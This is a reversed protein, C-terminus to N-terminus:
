WLNKWIKKIIFVKKQSSSIMDLGIEKLIYMQTELSESNIINSYTGVYDHARKILRKFM